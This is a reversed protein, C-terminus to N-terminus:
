MSEILKNARTFDMLEGDFSVVPLMTFGNDLLDDRIPQTINTIVHYAIGKNDLKAKLIECRPCTDSAYIFIDLPIENTTTQNKM